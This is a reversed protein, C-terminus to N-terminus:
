PVVESVKRKTPRLLNIANLSTTVAFFPAIDLSQVLRILLKLLETPRISNLIEDGLWAKRSKTVRHIGLLGNRKTVPEDCVKAGLIMVALVEGLVHYEKAFHLSYYIIDSDKLASPDGDVPMVPCQSVLESVRIITALTPAPITYEKEGIRVSDIPKQLITNSVNAQVPESQVPEGTAFGGLETVM